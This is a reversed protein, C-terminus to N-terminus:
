SIGARRKIWEQMRVVKQEKSEFYEEDYMGAMAAQYKEAMDRLVSEAEARYDWASRGSANRFEGEMFDLFGITQLVYKVDEANIGRLQPERLLNEIDSMDIYDPFSQNIRNALMQLGAAGQPDDPEADQAVDELGMIVQYSNWQKGSGENVSEDKYGLNGHIRDYEEDGYHLRLDNEEDDSNAYDNLELEDPLFDMKFDHNYLRVTVSNPCTSIVMGTEGEWEGSTVIVDDDHSFRGTETVSVGALEAIRGTDIGGEEAQLEPDQMTQDPDDESDVNQTTVGNQVGGSYNRNTQTLNQTGPKKNAAPADRRGPAPRSAAQSDAKRGGGMSYELQPLPGLIDGVQEKNRSSYATDLAIMDSLSLNNVIEDIIDDDLEEKFMDNVIQQIVDRINGGNDDLAEFLKMM